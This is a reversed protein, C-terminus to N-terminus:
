PVRPGDPGQTHFSIVDGRLFDAFLVCIGFVTVPVIAIAHGVVAVSAAQAASIGLVGFASAVFYHYTGIFGPTAPLASGFALFLLVIGPAYWPLEIGFSWIWVQIGLASAMWFVISLGIAAVVRRPDSVVRLGAEFRRAKARVFGLLRGSATGGGEDSTPATRAPRRAVLVLAGGGIVLGVAVAVLSRAFPLSVAALAVAGFGIALLTALDLMREIGAVALCSTAAVRGHRAVYSIRLLEGIRFPLVHNGVIGVLVSRFVRGLGISSIPSILLRARLTQVALGLGRIPIALALVRLDVRGLEAGVEELSVGRLLLAAFVVSVM